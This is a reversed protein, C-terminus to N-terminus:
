LLETSPKRSDLEFSSIVSTFINNKYVSGCLCGGHIIYFPEELLNTSCFVFNVILLCRIFLLEYTNIPYHGQFAVFNFPVYSFQPVCWTDAGAVSGAPM